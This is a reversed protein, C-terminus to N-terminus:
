ILLQRIKNVMLKHEEILKKEDYDSSTVINCENDYHEFIKKISTKNSKTLLTCLISPKVHTLLTTAYHLRNDFLLTLFETENFTPEFHLIGIFEKISSESHKTNSSVCYLSNLLEQATLISIKYNNNKAHSLIKDIIIQIYKPNRQIDCMHIIKAFPNDIYDDLVYENIFKTIKNIKKDNTDNSVIIPIIVQSLM